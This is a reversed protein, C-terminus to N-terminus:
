GRYYPDWILLQPFQEQCEVMGIEVWWRPNGRQEQEGGGYKGQERCWRGGHSGPWTHGTVSGPVLLTAIQLLCM